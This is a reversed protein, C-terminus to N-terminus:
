CEPLGKLNNLAKKVDVQPSEVRQLINILSSLDSGSINYYMESEPFTNDIVLQKGTATIERGVTSNFVDLDAFSM